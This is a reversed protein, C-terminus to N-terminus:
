RAWGPAIAHNDVLLLYGDEATPPMTTAYSPPDGINRYTGQRTRWWHRAAPDPADSLWARGKAIAVLEDVTGDFTVSGRWLVVARDCFGAVDDMLHTALVVTHERAVESVVRRFRLREFPDLGVTPEDLVLLHPQGLLAQAIGARRREGASLRHLSRHMRGALGVAELVRRVERRRQAAPHIQHLAAVYDVFEFASFGGFFHPDQPLYGLRERISRRDTPDAPDGGLVRVAGRDASDVTALIRLLTSKGAGNPGLLATVGPRFEVTVDTLAAVSGHRKGVRDLLTTM